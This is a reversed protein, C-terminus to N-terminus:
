VADSTDVLDKGVIEPLIRGLARRMKGAVVDPWPLQWAGAERLVAPDSVLGLKVVVAENLSRSRIIDLESRLTSSELPLRSFVERDVFQVKGVNLTLASIAEFHPLMSSAITWAIGAILVTPALIIIKQRNVLRFIERIGTPGGQTPARSGIM